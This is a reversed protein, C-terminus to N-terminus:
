NTCVKNHSTVSGAIEHLSDLLDDPSGVDERRLVCSGSGDENDFGSSKVESESNTCPICDVCSGTRTM